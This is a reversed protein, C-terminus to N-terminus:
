MRLRGEAVDVVANPINGFGKTESGDDPLVVGVVPTDVGAIDSSCSDVRVVLGKNLHYLISGKGSYADEACRQVRSASVRDEALWAPVIM